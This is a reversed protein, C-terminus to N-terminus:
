SVLPECQEGARPPKLILSSAMCCSSYNLGFKALGTQVWYSPQINCTHQPCLWFVVTRGTVDSYFNSCYHGTTLLVSSPQVTVVRLQLSRTLTRQLQCQWARMQQCATLGLGPARGPDDPGKVLIVKKVGKQVKKLQYNIM